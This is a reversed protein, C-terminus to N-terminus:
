ASHTARAPGEPFRSLLVDALWENGTAAILPRSEAAGALLQHLAARCHEHQNSSTCADYSRHGGRQAAVVGRASPPHALRAVAMPETLSVHYVHSLAKPHAKHPLM